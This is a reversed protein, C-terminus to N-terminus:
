SYGDTTYVVGDTAIIGMRKFDYLKNYNKLWEVTSWIDEETTIQFGKSEIEDAIKFLIQQRDELLREITADNQVAVDRLNGYLQAQIEKTINSRSNLIAIISIALALLVILFREKGHKNELM